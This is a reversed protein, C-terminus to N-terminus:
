THRPCPPCTHTCIPGGPFSSSLQLLQTSSSTHLQETPEAAGESNSASSCVPSGTLLPRNLCITHFKLDVRSDEPVM